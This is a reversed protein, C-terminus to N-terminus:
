TGGSMCLCCPSKDSRIQNLTHIGYKAQRLAVSPDRNNWEWCTWLPRSITFSVEIIVWKGRVSASPRLTFVNTHCCSTWTHACPNPDPLEACHSTTKQHIRHPLFSSICSLLTPSLSSGGLFPAYLSSLLKRPRYILSQEPSPKEPGAANWLSAKLSKKCPKITLWLQEWKQKPSPLWVRSSLFYTSPMRCIGTLYEAFYKVLVGWFQGPWLLSLRFFWWLRSSGLPVHYRFTHPSTLLLTDINVWQPM